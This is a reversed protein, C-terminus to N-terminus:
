FGLLSKLDIWPKIKRETEEVVKTYDQPGHCNIADDGIYVARPHKYGPTYLVDLGTQRKIHQLIKDAVQRPTKDILSSFSPRSTYLIVTGLNQLQKIFWAAEETLDNLVEPNYTDFEFMQMHLVNDFDLLIIPQDWLKTVQFYSALSSSFSHFNTMFRGAPLEPKTLFEPHLQLLRKSLRLNLM